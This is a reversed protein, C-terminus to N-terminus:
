IDNRDNIFSTRSLLNSIDFQYNQEKSETIFHFESGKIVNSSRTKAMSRGAFDKLNVMTSKDSTATSLACQMM